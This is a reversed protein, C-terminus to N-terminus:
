GYAEIWSPNPLEGRTVASIGREMIAIHRLHDDLRSEITMAWPAHLFGLLHESGLRELCYRVTLPFSDWTGLYYGSTPIQDYQREDLDLYTLYTEPPRLIRPRPGTDDRLDLGYHWNSQVVSSPMHAYYDDPRHWAADAWVWPRSGGAEVASTMVALDSWWLRGHRIAAFDLNQQLTYTEEDMGLHFLRPQDLIECTETILDTVVQHYPETGLMRGYMGLWADHRASFNLKPLLELGIDGLRRKEEALKAPSWAGPLAIEPHSQWAVADGLDLVVATVGAAALRNTVTRWVSEDFVMHDMYDQSPSPERGSPPPRDGWMNTALHMLYGWMM